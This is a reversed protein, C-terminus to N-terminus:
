SGSSDPGSCHVCEDTRGDRIEEAKKAEEYLLGLDSDITARDNRKFPIEGLVTWLRRYSEHIDV